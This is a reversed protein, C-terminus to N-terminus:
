LGTLQDDTLPHEFRSGFQVDDAWRVQARRIGIDALEIGFQSMVEPMASCSNATFGDQSINTVTIPLHRDDALWAVARLKVARRPARPAFRPPRKLDLPM